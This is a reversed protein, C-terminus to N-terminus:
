ARGWEDLWNLLRSSEIVRTISGCEAIWHIVILVALMGTQLWWPASVAAATGLAFGLLNAGTDGLMARGGLDDPLLLLTGVLLPFLWAAAVSPEGAALILLTVALFAKIARGPRLDLLNVANTTLVILGFHLLGALLGGGLEISIWCATLATGGAKMLGTSVSREVQWKRLHGKFGKVVKDGVSDDIWGLVFVVTLSSIYVYTWEGAAAGTGAFPSFPLPLGLELWIRSLWIYLLTLFWLYIGTAKPIRAQKYNAETMGHDVLFRISLPLAIMACALFIGFFLMGFILTGFILM